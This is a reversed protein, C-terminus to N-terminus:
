PRKKPEWKGVDLPCTFTTRGLFAFRQPGLFVDFLEPFRRAFFDHRFLRPGMERVLVELFRESPM